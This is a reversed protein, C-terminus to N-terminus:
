SSPPSPTVVGDREMLFATLEAGGLVTAWLLYMWFLMIPVAALAGYLSQYAKLDAITRERLQVQEAMEKFSESLRTVEDDIRRNVLPDLTSTDLNGEAMVKAAETLRKIPRAISQAIVAATAALMVCDHSASSRRRCTHYM